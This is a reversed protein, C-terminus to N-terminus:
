DDIVKELIGIIKEKCIPCNRGPNNKYVQGCNPGSCLCKHGCPALIWEIPNTMCIVCLKNEKNEEDEDNIKNIMIDYIKTKILNDIIRRDYPDEEPKDFIYKEGQVINAKKVEIFNNNEPSNAISNKEKCNECFMEETDVEMSDENSRKYNENNCNKCIFYSFSKNCKKFPCKINLNSYTNSNFDHKCFPCIYYYFIKGCSSYPCKIISCNKLKMGNNNPSCFKMCSPCQVTPMYKKCIDCTFLVDPSLTPSKIQTMNCNGCYLITFEKKCQTYSCSYEKGLGFVGKTFHNVKQCFPCQILASTKNCYDNNCVITQCPIYKKPEKWFNIQKCYFCNVFYFSKDCNQCTIKKGAIPSGDGYGSKKCFPCFYINYTTNCNKMLCNIKKGMELNAKVIPTMQKCKPCVIKNTVNGCEKYPCQIEQGEIYVKGKSNNWVCHRGCYWCGLKQFYLLASGGKGDHDCKLQNGECYDIPLEFSKPCDLCPCKVKKFSFKCEKCEVEDGQYYKYKTNFFIKKNCKTCKVSCTTAHCSIYPCFINYGDYEIKNFFIIQNCEPCFKYMFNKKCNNCSIDESKVNFIILQNCIPCQTEKDLAEVEM